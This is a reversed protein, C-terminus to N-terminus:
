LVNEGGTVSLRRTRSTVSKGFMLITRKAQYRSYEGTNAGTGFDWEPAEFGASGLM